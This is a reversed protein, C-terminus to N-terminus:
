DPTILFESVLLELIRFSFSFCSYGSVPSSQQLFPLHCDGPVSWLLLLSSPAWFTVWAIILDGSVWSSVEVTLCVSYFLSQPQKKVVYIGRKRKGFWNGVAAVCAPWGTSQFVGALIQVALFFAFSHIDTWYALGFLFGFLGSVIMGISLFYRLNVRECIAGRFLTM